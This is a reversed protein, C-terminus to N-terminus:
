TSKALRARAHADFWERRAKGINHQVHRSVAARPNMDLLADLAAIAEPLRIDQTYEYVRVRDIAQKLVPVLGHQSM